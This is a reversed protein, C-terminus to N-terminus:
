SRTRRRLEEVERQGQPLCALKKVVAELESLRGQRAYVEGLGSWARVYDPREALAVKLEREAEPLRDEDLAILGLQYHAQFGQLGLAVSGFHPEDRAELLARFCRAASALDRMERHGLGEQYLIEADRPYHGRGARCAAIAQEPQQLLLHSNAILAYLKRVISDSPASLALSRRFYGLAEAVHGLEQTAQGLNFLTFPHNPQEQYELRLLRLNRELKRAHTGPALYGVHRIVVDTWRVSGGALRISPLIQEHVRHEWRIGPQNRFLRIHDVETEVGADAACLCKMNYGVNEAALGALLRRLRARNVEDLRDDADMWFIWDGTAQRLSENRAAAFSDVWPFDVVRAGAALALERTRDTSGTDVVVVEDVLDVVSALCAPLHEEENKVIMCLSVKARSSSAGWAVVDCGVTEPGPQGLRRIPRERLALLRAAAVAAAREWTWNEAVHARAKAGKARVEDPRDAVRRLLYRLADADPEALWPYGVTAVDGVRKDPFTTLRYPLLYATEHDCYDRSPGYGTVIVALGHAMAELIPLCFGEGRYPHVLCTCSRYLAGLEEESLTRSIYEVAPAGPTQRLREILGQATQGEYFSGAGMDKIVLCVNDRVCFAEGYAKLLIDIGKRPITGGVFLFRTVPPPHRTSPSSVSPPYLTTPPSTNDKGGGTVRWEAGMVVGHPVIVLREAPVGSQVFSDRVFQSPVWIEDVLQCLPELWAAPLSGFEWPQAIVWHGSAPPTFDPPWQHAVHVDAGEAATSRDRLIEPLACSDGAPEACSAPVLRVDHGRRVLEGGLQRNVHALSHVGTFSGQWHIRPGRRDAERTLGLSSAAM